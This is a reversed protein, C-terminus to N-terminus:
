DRLLMPKAFAPVDFSFKPEQRTLLAHKERSLNPTDPRDAWHLVIEQDSPCTKVFADNSYAAHLYRWIGSLGSSLQFGKLAALAVRLHHLKPLVECDLHCLDDSRVFRHKGRQLYADFRELETRLPGSDKSVEKVFFCFRSFLNKVAIEAEPDDCSLDPKPWHSDVYAVIDDPTDLGQEGDWIAPVRSFGRSRFDKPPRALNVYVVGFKLGKLHLLLLCRQCFPCAGGSKGDFGAKAYFVLEDESM